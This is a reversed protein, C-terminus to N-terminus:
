FDLKAYALVGSTRWDINWDINPNDVDVNIKIWNYAVGVGINRFLDFEIAGRADILSGDYKDIKLFFFEGSGILHLRETLDYGGRFGIVPLPLSLSDSEVQGLNVVEFRAKNRQFFIGITPGFEYNDGAAFMYSYAFKFIKVSLDSVVNANIDFVRDGITIQRDITRTAGRSLDFYAADIRHKRSFRFVADVRFVANSSDAGFDSEFDFKTGLGASTTLGLDTDRDTIFTGVRLEFRTFDDDRAVADGSPILLAAGALLMLGLRALGFLYRIEFGTGTRQDFSPRVTRLERFMRNM